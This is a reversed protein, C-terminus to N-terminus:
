SVELPSDYTVLGPELSSNLGNLAVLVRKGGECLCPFECGLISSEVYQGKVMAM